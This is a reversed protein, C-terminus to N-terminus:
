RKSVDTGGRLGFQKVKETVTVTVTNKLTVPPGGVGYGDGYNWDNDYIAEGSGRGWGRMNGYDAGDGYGQGTNMSGGCFNLARHQASDICIRWNNMM